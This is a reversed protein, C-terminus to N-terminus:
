GIRKYIAARSVSFRRALDTVTWGDIYCQGITNWQDSTLRNHKVVLNYKRAYRQVTSTSCGVLEAIVARKYGKKLCEVIREEMSREKSILGMALLTNTVVKLAVGYEKAIDAASKDTTLWLTKLDAMYLVKDKKHRYLARNIEKLDVKYQRALELRTAGSYSIEEIAGDCLRPSPTTLGRRVELFSMDFAVAIEQESYGALQCENITKM